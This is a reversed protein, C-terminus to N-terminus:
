ASQKVYILEEKPNFLVARQIAGAARRLYFVLIDLAYFVCTVFLFTKLLSSWPYEPVYTYIFLGFFLPVCPVFVLTTIWDEIETVQKAFQTQGPILRQQQLFAQKMLYRKIRMPVSMYFALVIL